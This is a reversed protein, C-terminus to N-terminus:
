PQQEPAAAAARVAKGTRKIFDVVDRYSGVDSTRVEVPSEEKGLQQQQQKVEMKEWRRTESCHLKKLRLAVFCENLPCYSMYTHWACVQLICGRLGENDNMHMSLSVQALLFCREFFTIAVSDRVVFVKGDELMQPPAQGDHPPLLLLHRELDEQTCTFSSAFSAPTIGDGTAQKEVTHELQSICDQMTEMAMRYCRVLDSSKTPTITYSLNREDRCCLGRPERLCCRQLFAVSSVICGGQHRDAEKAMCEKLKADNWVRQLGFNGDGFSLWYIDTVYSSEHLTYTNRQEAKKYDITRFCETGRASIAPAKQLTSQQVLVASQKWGVTHPAGMVITWPDGGGGRHHHHTGQQQLPFNCAFIKRVSSECAQQMSGAAREHARVCVRVRKHVGKCETVRRKISIRVRTHPDFLTTM